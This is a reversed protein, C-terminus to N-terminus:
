TQARKNLFAPSQSSQLLSRLNIDIDRPDIGLAEESAAKSMGSLQLNKLVDRHLDATIRQIRRSITAEHVRLVRSIELLTRRDLYWSSLLFREEANLTRFAAAVADTVKLISETAPSPSTEPAPPDIAPLPAELSTRRHRDINRQALTARLFGKLSGRGSYSALPSQRQGGRENLGFLESYLSDALERGTDASATIAIAAQTLPERFRDIFQRWATERGLACAHALALDQLQLSQWFASMQDATARVGPAFGFNYKTGIHLLIRALEPKTLDVVEARAEHWLEDLLLGSLEM